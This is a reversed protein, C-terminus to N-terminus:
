FFLPHSLYSYLLLDTTRLSPLMLVQGPSCVVYSTIPGAFKIGSNYFLPFDALYQCVQMWNKISHKPYILYIEPHSPYNLFCNWQGVEASHRLHDFWPFTAPGRAQCPSLFYHSVKAGTLIGWGFFPHPPYSFLSDVTRLPPLM